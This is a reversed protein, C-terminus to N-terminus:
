RVAVRSQGLGQQEHACRARIITHNGGTEFCEIPQRFRLTAFGATVKNGYSRLAKIALTTFFGAEILLRNFGGARDGRTELRVTCGAVAVPAAFGPRREVPEAAVVIQLNREIIGDGTAAPVSQM